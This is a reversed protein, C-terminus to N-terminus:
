RKAIPFDTGVEVPFATQISHYQAALKPLIEKVQEFVTTLWIKDDGASINKTNLAELLATTLLGDKRDDTSADPLPELAEQVPTAAALIFVGVEHSHDTAGSAKEQNARRQEVALKVEGIKASRAFIM